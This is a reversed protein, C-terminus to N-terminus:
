AAGGKDWVSPESRTQPLDEMPGGSPDTAVAVAKSAGLDAAPALAPSLPYPLHWPCPDLFGAGTPLSLSPHAARPLLPRQMRVQLQSTQCNASM